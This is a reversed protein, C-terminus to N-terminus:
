FFIGFKAASTIALVTAKEPTTLVSKAPEPITDNFHQEITRAPFVSGLTDYEIDIQVVAAKIDSFILDAVKDAEVYIKRVIAQTAEDRESDSM